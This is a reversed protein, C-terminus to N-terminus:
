DFKREKFLSNLLLADTISGHIFFACPNVNEKFGGSLDDPVVVECGMKILEDCVHSGIFGDGGTLLVKRNM